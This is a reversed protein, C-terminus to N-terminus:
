DHIKAPTKSYIDIEREMWEKASVNDTSYLIDDVVWEHNEKIFQYIMEREFSEDHQEPFVNFNVRVADEGILESRLGSSEFSLNPSFEQADFYPDGGSGFGCIESGAYKKCIELNQKLLSDFSQSFKIEAKRDRFYDRYFNRVVHEPTDSERGRIVILGILVAVVFFLMSFFIYRHKTLMM